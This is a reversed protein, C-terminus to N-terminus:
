VLLLLTMSLERVPRKQSSLEKAIQTLYAPETSRGYYLYLFVLQTGLAMKDAITTEAKFPERFSCGWFPFYIQQSM